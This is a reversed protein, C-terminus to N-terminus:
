DVCGAEGYYVNNSIRKTQPTKKKKFLTKNFTNKISLEVVNLRCSTWFTCEWGHWAPSSLYKKDLGQVMCQHCSRQCSEWIQGNRNAASIRGPEYIPLLFQPFWKQSLFHHQWHERQWTPESLYFWWIKYCKDIKSNHIEQM